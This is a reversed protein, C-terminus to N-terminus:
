DIRGEHQLHRVLFEKGEVTLTFRRGIVRGRDWAYEPDDLPRAMRNAVLTEIAQDLQAETLTPCPGRNLHLLMEALELGTVDREEEEGRNLQKLVELLHREFEVARERDTEPM